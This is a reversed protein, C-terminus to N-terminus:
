LRTDRVDRDGRWLVDIFYFEVSSNVCILKEINVYFVFFCNMFFVSVFVLKSSKNARARNKVWFVWLILVPDISNCWISKLSNILISLIFLLWDIRSEPRKMKIM